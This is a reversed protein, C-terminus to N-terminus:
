PFNLQEAAIGADGANMGVGASGGPGGEGPTGLTVVPEGQPPSGQYAIGLSPGGLGGGGPGGNGGKGGKGGDCGDNSGGVGIGGAGAAGGSGGPQLDGGAGGHGGDRATLMCDTLTISAELSVLAISAGGPGGGQGPLGGCGGAGGSGGTAGSGGISGPPCIMGGKAGGGGGGGQGAKGSTGAGGSTGTYGSSSITGDSKAGAGAMGVEGPSGGDGLGSGGICSWMGAGPEGKGGFGAAGSQGDDGGGGFLVNGDGGQAGVSVDGTCDNTVAAGGALTADPGPTGDLDSCADKGANGAPGGAAPMGNPDGPAGDAGKAGNGAILDCRVLGATVGDVLVAISSGGEKTADPAQIRFDAVEAGGASKMITLAVEDADGMLVSKKTTGVYTWGDNCDLGGYLAIGNVLTVSGAHKEACAYVPKGKGTAMEVAAALTKLPKAQSGDGGDDEALSSSVFVGCEDAIIKNDASPV